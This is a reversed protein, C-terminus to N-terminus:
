NTRGDLAIQFFNWSAFNQDTRNHANTDLFSFFLWLALFVAVVALFVCIKDKIRGM